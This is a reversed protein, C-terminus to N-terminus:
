GLFTYLGSGDKGRGAPGPSTHYGCLRCSIADIQPKLAILHSGTFCSRVTGTAVATTQIVVTEQPTMPTPM